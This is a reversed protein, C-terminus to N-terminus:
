KVLVDICVKWKRPAYASVKRKDLIEIKKGLKRANKEIIVAGSFLNKGLGLCYFHIIGQKKLCRTALELYKEAEAPLPMIVRDCLGFYKECASEVDGLIPVILHAVKNIRINEKMYEVADVNAEVAIIKGVKPQKKAIVIAIPAVGAFMLMVIEKPKVQKAVRQRETSERPSFYTKQPDVKILCGYEKHIVETNEDGAILEYERLRFKGKRESVKKLVSKVNKNRKMIEEAIAKEDVGEPIEIIAVAKEKSGIIDIATMEVM